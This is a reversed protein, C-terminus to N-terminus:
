AREENNAAGAPADMTTINDYYQVGDLRVELTDPHWPPVPARAPDHQWVHPRRRVQSEHTTTSNFIAFFPQGPAGNRWHARASSDDLRNGAFLSDPTYPIM